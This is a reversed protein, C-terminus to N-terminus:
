NIKHGKDEKNYEKFFKKSQETVADKNFSLYFELEVHNSTLYGAIENAFNPDSASCLYMGILGKGAASQYWRNNYNEDSPDYNLLESLQDEKLDTERTEKLWYKDRKGKFYTHYFYKYIEYITEGDSSLFLIFAHSEAEKALNGTTIPVLPTQDKEEFNLDIQSLDLDPNLHQAQLLMINHTVTKFSDIFHDGDEDM